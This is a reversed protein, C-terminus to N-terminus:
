KNANRFGAGYAQNNETVEKREDGFTSMEDWFGHPANYGNGESADRQGDNNHDTRTKDSM